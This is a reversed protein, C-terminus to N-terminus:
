YPKLKNQNYWSETRKLRVSREFSNFAVYKVSKVMFIDRIKNSQMFRSNEPFSFCLVVFLAQVPEKAWISNPTVRYKEAFGEVLKVVELQIM